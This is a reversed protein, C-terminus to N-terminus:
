NTIKVSATFTNCLGPNASFFGRKAWWGHNLRSGHDRIRPRSYEDGSHTVTFNWMTLLQGTFPFWQRDAGLYVNGFCSAQLERRRSEQLAGATTRHQRQRRWSADLIGTMQQVHHGYEHAFTHAM